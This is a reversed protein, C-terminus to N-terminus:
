FRINTYVQKVKITDPCDTLSEAILLAEEYEREKILQEVQAMIPVPVLRWITTQSAIYIDRKVQMTRAGRLMITQVLTQTGSVSRVELFKPLLALVYPFFYGKCSM